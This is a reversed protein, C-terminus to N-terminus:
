PLWAPTAVATRIHEALIATMEHMPAQQKFVLIPDARLEAVSVCPCPQHKQCSRAQPLVDPSMLVVYAACPFASIQLLQPHPAKGYEYLPM